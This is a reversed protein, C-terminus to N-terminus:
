YWREVQEVVCGCFMTMAITVESVSFADVIEKLYAGYVGISLTGLRRVILKAM